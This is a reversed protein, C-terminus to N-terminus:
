KIFLNGIKYEKLAADIMDRNYVKQQLLYSIVVDKEMAFDFECDAFALLNKTDDYSLHATLALSFILNKMPAYNGNCINKWIEAEVSLAEGALIPDLNYKKLTERLHKYFAYRSFRNSICRFFGYPCFSFSFTKDVLQEKLAKLLREKEEQKALRMTNAPLTYARERGFDDTETAQMVPMRYGPLICLKDYNAYVECFYADLDAIFDFM